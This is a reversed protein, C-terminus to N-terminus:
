SRGALQPVGAMAAMPLLISEPEPIHSVFATADAGPGYTLLYAPVPGHASLPRNCAVCDGHVILLSGCNDCTM